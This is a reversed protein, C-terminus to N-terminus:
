QRKRVAVKVMARPRPPAALVVFLTFAAAILATLM